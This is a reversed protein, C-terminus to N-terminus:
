ARAAPRLLQSASLVLDPLGDYNPHVDGGSTLLEELEQLLVRWSVLDVVLHHINLFLSQSEANDFLVAALLPGSKIDLSKRSLTIAQAMESQDTSEVCNVRVSVEPTIYQEWGGDEDRRFRARLMSHRSVIAHLAELLSTSLIRRGLQLYFCQDFCLNEDPQLQFYLQQIPALSFACEISEKAASTPQETSKVASISGALHRITKKRLIDSTSINIHLPRAASSVQMTTISDSSLCFFSNDLSITASNINLVHAWLQQLM